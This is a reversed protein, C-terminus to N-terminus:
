KGRQDFAPRGLTGLLVDYPPKNEPHYEFRGREFYQVTYMKGDAGKEPFEETIPYGNVFLGGHAQWYGSFLAGVNHGTEKFYVHKGDNIPAAPGDVPHFQKGLLGLLVEYATGKNEPHLEFRAREFYQVTYSKGDTPSKEQMPASIPYGFQPLGGYRQWYPEMQKCVSQGTQPYLTGGDCPSPGNKWLGSYARTLDLYRNGYSAAPEIQTGEFWENYSTITVWEPNSALAAKWNEEYM